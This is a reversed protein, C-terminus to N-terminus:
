RMIHDFKGGATVTRWRFTEKCMARVYELHDFDDMTPWHDGCVRDVEAQATKFVEPYTIAALIFTCLAAATTDTGAEFRDIWNFCLIYRLLHFRGVYNWGPIGCGIRGDSIQGQGSTVTGRVRWRTSTRRPLNERQSGEIIGFLLEPYSKTSAFRCSEM